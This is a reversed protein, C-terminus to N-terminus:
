LSTRLAKENLDSEGARLLALYAEARIDWSNNDALSRLRECFAKDNCMAFAKDLAELFSPVDFGSLVESFMICERMDSTVVVPKELAFYEFLKLPSTSRAIKGPSFPIFCVDFYRAYLPLDVYDVAGVYLVNQARPLKAECGSYDPGLFIYGIDDRAAVLRKLMDYWLWPAIAGFYGVIRQFRRRFHLFSKPLQIGADSGCRYHAVDVGNPIYDVIAVGRSEICDQVLDQASAVIYDAAGSVAADKLAQLRKVEWRGGSIAADIHDIYEYIVRGVKKRAAMKKPTYLVATSYICWVVGSMNDVQADDTLWVNPAVEKFGGIANGATRYIVLCNRRGLAMAMHQPRQFLKIRWDVSPEFVFVMKYHDRESLVTSCFDIWGKVIDGDDYLRPLPVHTRFMRVLGHRVGHLSVRLPAPLLWFADRAIKYFRGLLLSIIQRM